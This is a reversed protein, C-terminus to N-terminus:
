FTFIELWLDILLFRFLTVSIFKFIDSILVPHVYWIGEKFRNKSQKLFTRLFLWICAAQLVLALFLPIFFIHPFHHYFSSHFAFLSHFSSLIKINILSLNMVGVLSSLKQTGQLVAIFSVYWLKLSILLNAIMMSVLMGEWFSVLCLSCLVGLSKFSSLWAWLHCVHIGIPVPFAPCIASPSVHSLGPLSPSPHVARQLRLRQAPGALQQWSPILGLMALAGSNELSVRIKM